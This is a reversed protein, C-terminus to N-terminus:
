VQWGGLSEPGGQGEGTQKMLGAREIRQKESSHCTTCLAQWNRRSWFLKLDGQHPVKHDVVTSASTIGREACFCCLPHERLFLERAARWKSGYLRAAANPRRADEVQRRESTHAECNRRGTVM